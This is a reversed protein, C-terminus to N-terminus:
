FAQGISFHIQYRSDEDFQPNIQYGLDMRIPGIPTQYRVGLGSTYRIDGLDMSFPKEYVNGFDVFAVGGFDRWIPYRIELSGELLTDGGIPEGKADRPGLEQFGYGRVSNSGGSFFRKFIPVDETTETPEVTGATVRGALVTGHPMPTFYRAETILKTYGIESGVTKTATEMGLKLYAGTHTDIILDRTDFQFAGLASSIFYETGRQSIEFPTAAKVGQPNNYEINHGLSVLFPKGLKRTVWLENFLRENTFSILKDKNYGFKDEMFQRGSFFYPQKFRSEFSEVIDSYKATLTLNRAQGLFNRHEWALQARVNDETGYGLGFKVSREKRLRAVITVPLSYPKKPDPEQASVTVVGFSGLDFINRQSEKIKELNYLDGEKFSVRSLIIAPDINEPCQVTISGFRYQRGPFLSLSVSAENKKPDVVAKAQLDAKAFGQVGLYDAIGKKTREYEDQTFAEGERMSVRKMVEKRYVEGLTELGVIKISKIRTVPGPLIFIELDVQRIQENKKIKAAVEANYYGWRRYLRRIREVDAKLLDESFEPRKEWPLRSKWSPMKLSLAEKIAKLQQSDAGEVIFERIKWKPENSEEALSVSLACCLVIIALAVPLASLIKVPAEM